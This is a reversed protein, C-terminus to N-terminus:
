IFYVTNLTIGCPLTQADFSLLLPWLLMRSSFALSPGSLLDLDLVVVRFFHPALCAPGPAGAWRWETKMDKRLLPFLQELDAARYGWPRNAEGWVVKAGATCTGV